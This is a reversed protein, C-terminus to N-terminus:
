GTLLWQCVNRCAWSGVSNCVRTWHGNEFVLPCVRRTVWDCVRRCIWKRVARWIQRKERADSIDYLDTIEPFDKAEEDVVKNAYKNSEVNAEEDNADMARRVVVYIPLNVCLDAMEASLVSRDDLLGLVKMQIETSTITLGEGTEPTETELAEKLVTPAVTGDVSSAMYCAKEVPLHIMTVQRKFDYVINGASETPSTKPVHFTETGKATDITIEEKFKKGGESLELSYKSM